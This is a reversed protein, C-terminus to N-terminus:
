DSNEIDKVFQEDNSSRRLTKGSARVSFVLLYICYLFESVGDVCCDSSKLNSFFFVAFCPNLAGFTAVGVVFLILLVKLKLTLIFLTDALSSDSVFFYFILYLPILFFLLFNKSHYILKKL